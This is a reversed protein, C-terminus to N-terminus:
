RFFNDLAVKDLTITGDPGVHRGLGLADDYGWIANRVHLKSTANRMARFWRARSEPPSLPPYAGFEGLLVPVHNRKGWDEAIRLRDLLYQSDYRHQGYERVADQYTGPIDGMMKSVAEPSSPFPLNRLAKMMDGTWTAGQHTFLFPDYCHYTYVINRQGLPRLHALADIGSWLTGSAVITRQPDVARIAEVTKRQLTYWVDPNKAFVPENVLEFLVTKEARGRYRKAMERWFSVFGSNDHGPADLKLQGNDHLDLLVVLGAGNLRDIARMLYPLNAANPHGADYIAEPSVCLRVFDLKLRRFNQLDGAKMYSAFHQADKPDRLYCFWRTINVGRNLHELVERPVANRGDSPGGLLALAAAFVSPNM